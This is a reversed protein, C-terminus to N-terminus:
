IPYATVFSLNENSCAALVSVIGVDTTSIESSATPFHSIAIAGVLFSELDEGTCNAYGDM